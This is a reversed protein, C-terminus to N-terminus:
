ESTTLGHATIANGVEAAEVCAPACAENLIDLQTQASAVDGLALAAFALGKLAIPSAPELELAIAFYKRSLIWDGGAAYFEAIELYPEPTRPAAIM